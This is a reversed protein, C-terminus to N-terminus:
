SSGRQLMPMKQELWTAKARPKVVLPTKEIGIHVRGDGGGIFSGFGYRSNLKKLHQARGKGDLHATGQMDLVATSAAFLAIVSAISTPLRALYQGPRRAYVWIAVVMYTCLIAESIVFMTKSLFLRQESQLSVGEIQEASQITIPLFLNRKYNGLWIAFLKSYAKNIPGVVEEFTPLPTNPDILQSSNITRRVFHNFFDTAYTDNHLSARNRFLYRNSQGILNIPDTSFLSEGNAKQDWSVDKAPQQLRGSADVRVIASGTIVKPMCQVFLTERKSMSVNQSAGCLGEAGRMWGLIVSGTCVDTEQQTANKRPDLTIVLELSSPSTSCTRDRMTPGKGISLSARNTCRVKGSGSPISINLSAQLNATIEVKFDSNLQLPKCDLSAGLAKTRAEFTTGNSLDKRDIEPFIPMYFMTDDTWSPLSTNRTFNSEAILFQDQGDGGHYAGSAQGSGFTFGDIPGISGNIPVLKFQYPPQMSTTYSVDIRQQNFLGSFAVALVNALLAMACVAALVLHKSKLAQFFVLQPPLSNYNADISKDAKANCDQLEELPQLM